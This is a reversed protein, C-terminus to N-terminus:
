AQEEPLPFLEDTAMVIREGVVGNVFNKLVRAGKRYNDIFQDRGNGKNKSDNFLDRLRLIESHQPGTFNNQDQGHRLVHCFETLKDHPVSYWARGVVGQIPKRCAVGKVPTRFIDAAFRVAQEHRKIFEFLMSPSVTRAAGVYGHGLMMGGAVTKMARDVDVGYVFKMDDVPDRKAQQDIGIRAEKPLDFHMLLRVTKDGRSIAEFRHQGDGVLIDDADDTESMLFAVGQHTMLWNDSAMDGKYKNYLSARVKRNFRNHHQLIYKAFAPTVSAIISKISHEDGDDTPVARAAARLQRLHERHDADSQPASATVTVDSINDSSSTFM